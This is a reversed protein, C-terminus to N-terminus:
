IAVTPVGAKRRNWWTTIGEVFISVVVCFFWAGGAKWGADEQFHHIAWSLLSYVFFVVLIRGFWTMEKCGWGIGGFTGLTLVAGLLYILADFTGLGLGLNFFGRGNQIANAIAFCISIPLACTQVGTVPM